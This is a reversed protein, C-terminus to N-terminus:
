LFMYICVYLHVYMCYDLVFKSFFTVFYVLATEIRCVMLLM